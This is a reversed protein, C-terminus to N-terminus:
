WTCSLNFSFSSHTHTSFCSLYLNKWVPASCTVISCNFDLGFYSLLDLQNYNQHNQNLHWSSVSKSLPDMPPVHIASLDTVLVAWGTWTKIPVTLDGKCKCRYWFSWYIHNWWNHDVTCMQHGRHKHMLTVHLSFCFLLEKEPSQSHRHLINDSQTLLFLSCLSPYQQIFLVAPSCHM